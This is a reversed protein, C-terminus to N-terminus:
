FTAAKWIDSDGLTVCWIVQMLAMLVDVHIIVITCSSCIICLRSLQLSDKVLHLHDNHVTVYDTYVCVRCFFHCTNIRVM